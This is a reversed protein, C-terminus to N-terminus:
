GAYTDLEGDRPMNEIILMSLMFKVRTEVTDVGGAGMWDPEIRNGFPLTRAAEGPVEFM